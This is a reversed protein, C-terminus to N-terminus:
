SRVEWLKLIEDSASIYGGHIDQMWYTSVAGSQRLVRSPWDAWPLHRVGKLRAADDRAVPSAFDNLLLELDTLDSAKTSKGFIELLNPEHRHWILDVFEMVRFLEAPTVARAVLRAWWYLLHRGHEHATSETPLSWMRSIERHTVEQFIVLPCSRGVKDESATIVGRVFYNGAFSTARPPFIFAIPINLSRPRQHWYDATWQIWFEAQEHSVNHRVYDGHTPWKGWLSPERAACFHTLGRKVLHLAELAM